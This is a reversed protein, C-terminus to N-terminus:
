GAKTGGDTTPTAKPTKAVKATEKKEKAAKLKEGQVKVAAALAEYPAKGDGFAREEAPYSYYTNGVGRMYTNTAEQVADQADKIIAKVKPKVVKSSKREEDTLTITKKSLYDNLFDKGDKKAWTTVDTAHFKEHRECLAKSWYKDRPAVWSKEDLQPTLDAVIDQYTDAKVVSSTASPVDKNGGSTVGWTTKLLFAARVDLSPDKAGKVVNYKVSSTKWSRSLAGFPDDEKHTGISTTVKPDAVVADADDAAVHAVQSESTGLDLSAM